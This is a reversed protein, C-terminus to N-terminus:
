GRMAGDIRIVEGNIYGAAESALFCILEAVERPTGARGAPIRGILKERVAEPLAATMDTEIYGPAIANCTIGKSALEAAASRTLGILGAKSACYNAQGANGTFAVVSAVNIIRGYRSRIFTRCLAKTMNFAGRLNVSIVEDFSEASMRMLLADRTIGANNVLIDARQFDGLIREATKECESSEAVNCKYARASVGFSEASRVTAAAANDDGSYIVAVAVGRQALLLATERGIGRSGGTIVAVRQVAKTACDTM